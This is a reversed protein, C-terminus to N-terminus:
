IPFLFSDHVNHIVSDALMLTLYKDDNSLSACSKQFRCLWFYFTNKNSDEAAKLGGRPCPVRSIANTHLYVHWPLGSHLSLPSPASSFVSLPLASVRNHFWPFIVRGKEQAQARKYSWDYFKIQVKPALAKRVSDKVLGHARSKMVMYHDWSSSNNMWDILPHRQPTEIAPSKKLGALPALQLSFFMFIKKYLIELITSNIRHPSAHNM